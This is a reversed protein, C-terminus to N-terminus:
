VAVELLYSVLSQDWDRPVSIVDGSELEHYLWCHIGEVSDDVNLVDENILLWGRVWIAVLFLQIAELSVGSAELSSEAKGFLLRLLYFIM